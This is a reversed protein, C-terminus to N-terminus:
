PLPQYSYFTGQEAQLFPWTSALSPAGQPISVHQPLLLLLRSSTSVTSITLWQCLNQSRKKKIYLM